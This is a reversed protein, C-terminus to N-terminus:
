RVDPFRSSVRRRGLLGSRHFYGYVDTCGSDGGDDFVANRM